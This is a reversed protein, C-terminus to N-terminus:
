GMERRTQFPNSISRRCFYELETLSDLDRSIDDDGENEEKEVAAAAAAAAREFGARLGGDTRPPRIQFLCPGLV